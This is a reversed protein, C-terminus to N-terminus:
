SGRRFTGGTVAPVHCQVCQLREPHSCRIEARAAEGTHCAACNERMFVAHPMVPPAHEHAREGRRLDQPLGAFSNERFVDDSVREGRALRQSAPITERMDMGSCFVRSGAGTLVACRIEADDAIRRWAAALERLTTPDLANARKPRDITVLLVDRPPPSASCGIACLVLCLVMGTARRLSRRM